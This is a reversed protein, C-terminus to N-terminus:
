WIVYGYTGPYFNFSSSNSLKVQGASYTVTFIGSAVYYSYYATSYSNARGGVTWVTSTRADIATVYKSGKVDTNYGTELTLMIHSPTFSLGSITLSTSSSATVTGTAVPVNTGTILNGNNDYATYGTLIKDAAATTPTALATGEVKAGDIYATKGKFINAAIATTDKAINDIYAPYEDILVNDAIPVNKNAISTKINQKANQLREIQEPLSM